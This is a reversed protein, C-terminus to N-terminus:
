RGFKGETLTIFCIMKVLFGPHSFLFGNAKPSFLSKRILAYWQIKPGYNISPRTEWGSNIDVM